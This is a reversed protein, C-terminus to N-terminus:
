AFVRGACEADCYRLDNTPEDLVLFNPNRMLVTCLYLPPTRGWRLKYVYSHQTEPTFLFHQLFQSATLKKGNGLEIVEAIDQVVDIM